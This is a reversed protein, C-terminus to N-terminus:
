LLSFMEPCIGSTNGALSYGCRFCLGSIARRRSRIWGWIRIAPLLSTMVLISWLPIIWQHAYVILLPGSRHAFGFVHWEEQPTGPGWSRDDPRPMTRNYRLGQPSSQVTGGAGTLDAVVEPIEWAAVLEVTGRSTDAAFTDGNRANWRLTDVAWYSRVWLVVTALCLLLSLLSIINFSRRRM